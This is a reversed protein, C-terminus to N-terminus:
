RREQQLNEELRSQLFIKVETKVCVVREEFVIPIKLGHSLYKGRVVSMTFLEEPM